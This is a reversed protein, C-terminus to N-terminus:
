PDQPLGGAEGLQDARRLHEAAGLLDNREVAIQALGTHM